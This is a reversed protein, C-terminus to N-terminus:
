RNQHNIGEYAVDKKHIMKISVNYNCIAATDLSQNM